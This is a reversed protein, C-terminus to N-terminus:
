ARARRTTVAGTRDDGLRRLAEARIAALRVSSWAVAWMTGVLGIACAIMAMGDGVTM